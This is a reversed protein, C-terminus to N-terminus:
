FLKVGIGASVSPFDAKTLQTRNFINIYSLKGTWRQNKSFYFGVSPKIGLLTQEGIFSPGAVFSVYISPELQFSSGAFLNVMSSVRDIAGSFSGDPNVSVFRLVKDDYLYIDRSLEITPKFKTNNNLFAQLGIGLAWPNNGATFDDVTNNYQAMLYTSLKRHTQSFTQTLVFCFLFTILLKLM